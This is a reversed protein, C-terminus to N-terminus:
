RVGRMAREEASLSLRFSPRKFLREMYDFLPKAQRTAPLEVGLLPLRWLIPAMCCDVLSFEDSMFYPKQTFVPAVTLLTDALSKAVGKAATGQALADVMCSWDRDIRHMLLRAEARAGPHAQLLPPHPFREDLYEMIVRPEYIVQERDVLVPLTGYPNLDYLEEPVAAPDLHITDAEVDKEAMVLRVRHSYHSRADSLLTTAARRGVLSM